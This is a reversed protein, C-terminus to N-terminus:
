VDFIGVLVVHRHHNRQNSAARRPDKRNGDHIRELQDTGLHLRLLHAVPFDANRELLHNILEARTSQEFSEQRGNHSVSRERRDVPRRVLRELAQLSDRLWIEHFGKHTARDSATKCGKQSTREVDDFSM